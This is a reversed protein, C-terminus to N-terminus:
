RLMAYYGIFPLLKSSNVYTSFMPSAKVEQQLPSSSKFFLLRCPNNKLGLTGPKARLMKHRHPLNFVVAFERGGRGNLASTQKGKGECPQDLSQNQGVSHLVTYVESM